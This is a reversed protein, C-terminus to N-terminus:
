KETKNLLGNILNLTAEIGHAIGLDYPERLSFPLRDKVDKKLQKLDKRTIKM